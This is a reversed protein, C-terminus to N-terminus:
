PCLIWATPALRIVPCVSGYTPMKASLASAIAGSDSAVVVRNNGSDAILFKGGSLPALRM